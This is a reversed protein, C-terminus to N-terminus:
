PMDSVAFGGLLGADSREAVLSQIAWSGPNDAVLLLKATALGKIIATDRWGADDGADEVPGGDQEILKWVHGHIHLPQAFNTRNDVAIVLTENRRAEFLLPGGPGAVGNMAWALGRELLQRLALVESGAQASQLGGKAGGALVLPVERAAAVDAVPLLNRPLSFNDAVGEGAQGAPILFAVEVVDESLDLAVVAQELINGVLLDTRQGPALTLTELALPRPKVPQGDEAIVILDINKFQLTLTRTNCVNLLRLRNNKAADIDIRPKFTGNVTFWNGLRGQGIAAELNGFSNDM